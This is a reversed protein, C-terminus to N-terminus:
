SSLRSALFLTKDDDTRDNIQKSDLYESLKQQLIDVQEPESASRMHQFMGTFFPQHATQTDMTLVLNQLGDTFLAIETVVEDLIMVKLNGLARDDVIFFTTNQYEGNHPWSVPVYFNNGDNRVIAGDGIHFFATRTKTICCGLLTCSFENHKVTHAEAEQLLADYVSEVIAYIDSETIENETNVLMKLAEKMLQTALASAQAAYQASGAGDSMCCILVEDGNGDDFVEYCVSDECPKGSATHSTGAVSNGIAKWMM